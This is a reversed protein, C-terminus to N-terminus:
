SDLYEDREKIAKDILEIFMNVEGNHNLKNWYKIVHKTDILFTYVFEHDGNNDKWESKAYGIYHILDNSNFHNNYMNYPLIFANRISHINIKNNKKLYDGYTIQKQISSTEPLDRSDATFGFRYYKSDLIYVINDKILISDPRLESSPTEKFNNQVLCWNAKPNFEKLNSQNGFIFDIMREFVYYYTDVGYLFEDDLSNADLGNIVKLMHNLRLKKYDDFTKDIELRLANIYIKKLGETFPKTIIGKSNMNFLWGIFDISKKVCYKHIDVLLNDMNNRVEVVVNNYIVNGNSIIPQNRMTRKWNIRGRQNNKFVKERNVYIGNALYDHIIWLYSLLAFSENKALSSEIKSKNSSLTKAINITKLIALVDERFTKIDKQSSLNYTEPYYFKVKNNKIKIGIFSNDIKGDVSITEINISKM